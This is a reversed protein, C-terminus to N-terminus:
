LVDDLRDSFLPNSSPPPERGAADADLRQQDQRHQEHGHDEAHHQNRLALAADGGLAGLVDAAPPDVAARPLVQGSRTLWAPTMGMMKALLKSSNGETIKLWRGGLVRISQTSGIWCDELAAFRQVYM